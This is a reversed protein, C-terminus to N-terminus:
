RVIEWGSKLVASRLADFTNFPASESGKDTAVVYGASYKLRYVIWQRESWDAAKRELMANRSSVPKVRITRYIDLKPRRDKPETSLISKRDANLMPENIAARGAQGHRFKDVKKPRRLEHQIMAAYVPDRAMKAVIAEMTDTTFKVPPNDSLQRETATPLDRLGMKRGSGQPVNRHLERTAMVAQVGQELVHDILRASPEDGSVRYAVAKDRLKQEVSM